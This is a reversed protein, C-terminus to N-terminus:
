GNLVKSVTVSAPHGEASRTPWAQPHGADLEARALRVAGAVVALFPPTTRRSRSGSAAASPQGGRIGATLGDADPRVRVQPDATEPWAEKVLPLLEGKEYMEAIIDSGRDTRRQDVAAPLDALQWLGAPQASRPTPSFTSTPSVAGRLGDASAHRASFGCQPQNPSGKMYLIIPNSEIQQKIIEM